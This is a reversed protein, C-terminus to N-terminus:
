RYHGKQLLEDAVVLTEQAQHFRYEILKSLNETM